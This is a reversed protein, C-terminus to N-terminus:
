TSALRQRVMNDLDHARAVRERANLDGAEAAKVLANWEAILAGVKGVAALGGARRLEERTVGGPRSTVETAYMGRWDAAARRWLAPEGESWLAALDSM